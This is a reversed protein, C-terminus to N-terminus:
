LYVLIMQVLTTCVNALLAVIQFGTEGNAKNIKTSENIELSLSLGLLLYFFAWTWKM